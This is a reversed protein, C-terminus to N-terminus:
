GDLQDLLHTMFLLALQVESDTKSSGLNGKRGQQSVLLRQSLARDIDTETLQVERNWMMRDSQMGHHNSACFVQRVGDIVQFVCGPKARLNNIDRLNSFLWFNDTQDSSWKVM